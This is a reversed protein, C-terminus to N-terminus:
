GRRLDPRFVAYPIKERGATLRAERWRDIPDLVALIAVVALVLTIAITIAGLAPHDIGMYDILKLIVLMHILYVPYALDGLRRDLRASKTLWFLHPLSWGIIGILLFQSRKIPLAQLLLSAVATMGAYAWATIMSPPQEVLRRYRPYMLWGFLFLALVSPLFSHAWADYGFGARALALRIAVSVLLMAVVMHNPLKVLFPAIVYLALELGMTWGQPFVMFTSLFPQYAPFNPTFFLTGTEPKIGFFLVWDQLFMFLSSFILYTRAGPAVYQGHVTASTFVTPLVAISVALTLWYIPFLRLARNTLFLRLQDPGTYKESLILAMYFGSIIFLVRLTAEGGYPSRGLIPGAHYWVVVLASYLRLLGV